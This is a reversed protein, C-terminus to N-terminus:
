PGGRVAPHLTLTVDLPDDQGGPIAIAPSSGRDPDYAMVHTPRAPVGVIRFRGSPDSEGSRIEVLSGFGDDSPGSTASPDRFVGIRIKAGAVVAGASDVVKGGLTRGRPVTIVGLDTTVGPEIKVDHQMFDAFEPSQFLIDYTGPDIEQLQFAGDHASTPFQSGIMVTLQTPPQSAGALMVRGVLGGPTALLLVVDRAGAKAIVGHEGPAGFVSTGGARREALVRYSGSSLRHIVFSGDGGSLAASPPMQPAAAAQTADRENPHATVQVDSIPRGREDVVKGSITETLDLVLELRAESQSLLDVDRLMCAADNSEAHVSLKRRPLGHLEFSGDNAAVVRRFASAGLQLENATVDVSAFAVPQGTSDIVHGLIAGGASMTMDISRVAHDSVGFPLTYAPAHEGDSARLTYIGRAVATFVFEGNENTLVSAGDYSNRLGDVSTVHALEIPSGNEDTVRGSVPYGRQLTIMIEGTAGPSGVSTVGIAPAYGSASVEIGVWGPYLPALRAKGLGSTKLSPKSPGGVRVRIDAGEIPHETVDRVTVVVSASEALRIVLPDSRSSLDYRLPGGIMDMYTASVFYGGAVLNDFAFSGDAATTSIMPPSLDLSVRAGSVGNGDTGIVQGGLQLVGESEQDMADHLSHGRQKDHSGGSASTSQTSRREPHTANQVRERDGNGRWLLAILIAVAVAVFASTGAARRRNM